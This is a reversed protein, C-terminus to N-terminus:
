VCVAGVAEGGGGGFRAVAPPTLVEGDVEGITVAGPLGPAEPPEPEAKHPSIFFDAIQSGVRQLARFPDTPLNERVSGM